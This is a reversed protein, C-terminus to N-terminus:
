FNGRRPSTGSMGVLLRDAVLAFRTTSIEDLFTYWAYKAEHLYFIVVPRICAGAGGIKSSDAAHLYFIVV